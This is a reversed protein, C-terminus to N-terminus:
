GQETGQQRHGFAIFHDGIQGSLERVAGFREAAPGRPPPVPAL